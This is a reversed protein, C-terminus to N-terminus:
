KMLHVKHLALKGSIWMNQYDLVFSNKKKLLGQLILAEFPAIFFLVLSVGLCSQHGM